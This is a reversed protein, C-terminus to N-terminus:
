KLKVYVEVRGCPLVRRPSCIREADKTRKINRKRDNARRTTESAHSPAPGRAQMPISPNFGPGLNPAAPKSKAPTKRTNRLHSLGTVSARVATSALRDLSDVVRVRKGRKYPSSTRSISYTPPDEALLARSGRLKNSKVREDRKKLLDRM